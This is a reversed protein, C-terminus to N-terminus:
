AYALLMEEFDRTIDHTYTVLNSEIYARRAFDETKEFPPYQKTLEVIRDCFDYLLDWEDARQMWIPFTSQIMPHHISPDRRLAEITAPPVFTSLATVQQFLLHVSSEKFTNTAVRSALERQADRAFRQAVRSDDSADSADAASAFRRKRAIM